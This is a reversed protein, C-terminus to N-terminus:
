EWKQEYCQKPSPKSTWVRMEGHKLNNMYWKDPIKCYYIEEGTVGIIEVPAPCILNKFEFWVVKGIYDKIKDKSILKPEPEELLDLIDGALDLPIVTTRSEASLSLAVLKSLSDYVGKRDAM